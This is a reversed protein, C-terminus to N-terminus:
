RSWEKAHERKERAVTLVGGLLGILVCLLLAAFICVAIQYALGLGWLWISVAWLILVAAGLLVGLFVSIFSYAGLKMLWHPRSYAPKFKPKSM